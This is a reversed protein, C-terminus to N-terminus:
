EVLLGALRILAVEALKATFRANILTNEARILNLQAERFQTTTVQGFNFKELTVEFNERVIELNREQMDMVTLANQFTYYANTLNREVIEQTQQIQQRNNEIGIRANQIQINQQKGNFINFNINIGGTFGFSQNILIFGAENQNRNFSYSGTLDVTPMQGAEAIELDTEAITQGYTALRIDSNKELAEDLLQTLDLERSFDINDQVVFNSALDRVLLQNLSRKANEYNTEATVLTVSDANLDVTANLIDLKNATGFENKGEQRALRDQSIKLAEQAIVYSEAQRAVEYYATIVDNSTNELVQRTQLNSQEVLIQFRKYNNQALGGGYLRYNVNLAANQANSAAGNQSQTEGTAFEFKANNNSYSAGGTVSVTPSFGANGKTASNQNVTETNHAIRIQHNNELALTVAEQLTLTDVTIIGLTSDVQAALTISLLNFLISLKFFKYM